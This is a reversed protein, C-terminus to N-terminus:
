GAVRNLVPELGAGLSVQFPRRETVSGRFGLGGRDELARDQAFSRDAAGDLQDHALARGEGSGRAQDVRGRVLRALAEEGRLREVLRAVDLDERLPEEVEAHLLGLEFVHDLAM